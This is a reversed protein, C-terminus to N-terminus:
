GCNDCVGTPPISMNCTPCITPQEAARREKRLRTHIQDFRPSLAPRGGDAPVKADAWQYCALRATAAHKERALPDDFDPGDTLRVAEDYGVGVTGDGKQVVLATLPPEGNEHNLRAVRELVPGLWSRVQRRTHIGSSEQVEAALEAYEILGQYTGAVRTLVRHAEPTWADEAEERTLDVVEPAETLVDGEGPDPTSLGEAAPDTTRWYTPRVDAV